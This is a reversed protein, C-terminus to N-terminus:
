LKSQMLFYLKAIKKVSDWDGEAEGQLRLLTLSAQWVMKLANEFQFKGLNSFSTMHPDGDPPQSSLTYKQKLELNM